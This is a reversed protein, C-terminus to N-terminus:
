EVTVTVLLDGTYTGENATEATTQPIRVLLGAANGTACTPSQSADQATVPTGSTVAGNPATPVAAENFYVEYGLRDGDGNIVQFATGSDDGSDGEFLIEYTGPTAGGRNRWVCFTDSADMNGPSAFDFTGLDLQDSGDGFGTIRVIGPVVARVQASTESSNGPTGDAAFTAASTALMGAATLKILQKMNMNM